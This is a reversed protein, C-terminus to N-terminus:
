VVVGIRYDDGLIFSGSLAVVVYVAPDHRIRRCGRAIRRVQFYHGMRLIDLNLLASNALSFSTITRLAFLPFLEITPPNLLVIKHVSPKAKTANLAFACVVLVSVATGAEM